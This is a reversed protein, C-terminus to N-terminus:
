REKAIMVQDLLMTRSVATGNQVGATLRLAVATLSAPTISARVVGNLSAIINGAGNYHFGVSFQTANAIPGFAASVTEVGGVRSVLFFNLADDDKRLFIGDAPTLFNNAAVAIQLGLAIDCQTADDVQARAIFSLKKGAVLTWATVLQQIFNNDNDAASNALSILGGDGVVLAPAVPAGAGGVVWQAATYLDFDEYRLHYQSLDPIKLNALVDNEAVNTVGNPFRTILRDIAM